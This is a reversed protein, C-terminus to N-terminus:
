VAAPADREKTHVYKSVLLFIAYLICQFVFLPRVFKWKVSLLKQVSSHVLLDYNKGEVIQHFVSPTWHQSALERELKLLYFKQKGKNTDKEWIQNSNM